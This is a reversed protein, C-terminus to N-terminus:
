LLTQPCQCFSRSYEVAALLTQKSQLLSEKRKGTTSPRIWAMSYVTLQGDLIATGSRIYVQDHNVFNFWPVVHLFVGSYRSNRSAVGQMYPTLSSKGYLPENGKVKDVMERMDMEVERKNEEMGYLREIRPTLQQKRKSPPNPDQRISCTYFYIFGAGAGITCSLRMVSAFGGKAVHSPAIREWLLM